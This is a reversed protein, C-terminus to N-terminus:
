LSDVKQKAAIYVQSGPPSRRIIQVFLEKAKDPKVKHLMEARKYIKHCWRLERCTEAAAIADPDKKMEDLRKKAEIASPAPSACASRTTPM